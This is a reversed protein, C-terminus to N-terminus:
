HVASEQEAQAAKKVRTIGGNKGKSSEFCPDSKLVSEVRATIEKHAEPSVQLDSLVYTLLAPKNMRIANFRDFVKHITETIKPADCNQKNDWAGLDTLFKNNTADYDVCGNSDRVVYSAFNINSM